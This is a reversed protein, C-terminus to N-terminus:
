DKLSALRDKHREMVGMAASMQDKGKDMEEKIEKAIQMFLEPDKEVMAMMQAQQSEPVGKMQRKLMQKMLFNRM